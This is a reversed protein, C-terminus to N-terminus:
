PSVAILWRKALESSTCWTARELWPDDVRWGRGDGRVCLWHNIEGGDLDVLVVLLTGYTPQPPTAVIVAAPRGSSRLGRLIGALTTGTDGTHCRVSMDRETADIGLWSLAEVCAAPGCTRDTTQACHHQADAHVPAGVPGYWALM